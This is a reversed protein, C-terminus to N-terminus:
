GYRLAYLAKSLNTFGMDGQLDLVTMKQNKSMAGILQQIDCSVMSPPSFEKKTQKLIDTVTQEPRLRNWM